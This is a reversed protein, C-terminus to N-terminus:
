GNTKNGKTFKWINVLMLISRIVPAIAWRAFVLNIFLLWIPRPLCSIDLLIEKAITLTPFFYNNFFSLLQVIGEGLDPFISVIIAQVPYIVISGIIKVIWFFVDILFTFLANLM